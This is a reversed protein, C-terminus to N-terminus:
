SLAKELWLRCEYHPFDCPTRRKSKCVFGCKLYLAMAPYNNDAVELALRKLGCEKAKKAALDLLYEALGKRRHAENTALTEIYLMDGKCASQWEHLRSKSLCYEEPTLWKQLNSDKFDFFSLGKAYYGLFAALEAGKATFIVADYNLSQKLIWLAKDKPFLWTVVPKFQRYTMEGIQEYFYEREM